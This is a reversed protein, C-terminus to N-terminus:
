LFFICIVLKGFQAHNTVNSIALPSIDLFVLEIKVNGQRILLLLARSKSTILCLVRNDHIVYAGEIVENAELRRDLKGGGIVKKMSIDVFWVSTPCQVTWVNETNKSSQLVNLKLHKMTKIKDRINLLINRSLYNDDDSKSITEILGKDMGLFLQKHSEWFNMRVSKTEKLTKQSKIKEQAKADKQLKQFM